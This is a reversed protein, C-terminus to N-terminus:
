NKAPAGSQVTNFSLRCRQGARIAHDSNPVELRVGFTGTASDLVTDIVTVKASFRQGTEPTVQAAIGWRLDPLNAAPLYTEVYLPDTRAIVLIPDQENYLEGPSLVRRVVVGDFPARVTKREIAAQAGRLREQALEREVKARKLQLRATAAELEASEADGKAILSKDSLQTLRKAQSEAVEIRKEALTISTEDDVQIRALHELSREESDELRALVEGQKIRDGRDVTITRIIGRAAAGLKATSHPVIICDSSITALTPVGSLLLAATALSLERWLIPM